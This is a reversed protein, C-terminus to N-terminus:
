IKYHLLFEYRNTSIKILTGFEWGNKLFNNIGIVKNINLYAVVHEYGLEKIKDLRILVLERYLDKGRHNVDILDNLLVATNKNNIGTDNFFKEKRIRNELKTKKLGDIADYQLMSSFGILKDKEYKGYIYGNLILVELQKENRNLVIDFNKDETEHYKKLLELIENIDKINLLRIM